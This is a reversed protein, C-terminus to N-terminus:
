LFILFHNEKQEDNICRWVTEKISNIIDHISEMQM